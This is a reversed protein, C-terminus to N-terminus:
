GFEILVKLTGREQTRLFAENARDFGYVDSILPLVDIAGKSLARLAPEFPGCRSGIITLEDIVIPSLNMKRSAAVTTKLVLRGRPRILKLATEFGEESGTADVVIDFKKEMPLDKLLKTKVSQDRAVKLKNEHKGVLTVDAQTLNLVLSIQIGLKGDGLILVKDTPRVHVQELIEFAAALPETFTAESDTVNEPVEVLNDLPLTVYDAFAGDRGLIGLVTREQCHTKLGRLCSDCRGCSCNIEGTVRKGILDDRGGKVEVVEGVFEHGLIGKFGMYGKTIELDTECIGATSVRILAEGEKPEPVPLDELFKLEDDFVIAKM